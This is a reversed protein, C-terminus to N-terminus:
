VVGLRQILGQAPVKSGFLVTTTKGDLFSIEVGFRHVNGLAGSDSPGTIRVIHDTNVYLPTDNPSATNVHVFM